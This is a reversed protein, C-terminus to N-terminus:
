PARKELTIEDGSVHVVADIGAARLRSEIEAGLAADDMADANPIEVTTAKGDATVALVLSLVGAPDKKKM